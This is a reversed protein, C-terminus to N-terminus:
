TTSVNESMKSKRRDKYVVNQVQSECIDYKISLDMFTATRNGENHVLMTDFDTIIMYNRLRRKEVMGREVLHRLIDKTTPDNGFRKTLELTLTEIYEYIVEPKNKLNKPM